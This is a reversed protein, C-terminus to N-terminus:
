NLEEIYNTIKKVSDDSKQCWIYDAPKSNISDLFNIISKVSYNDEDCIISNVKKQVLKANIM